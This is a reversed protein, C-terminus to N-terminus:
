ININPYAEKVLKSTLFKVGLDKNILKILLEAEDKHLAELIGALIQKQKLPTLGEPRKPHGKIFRYLRSIETDLYAFNLGAPENAPRYPPIEVDFKIEPHFAMQLFEAFRIHYNKRLVAIREDKTSAKAFDELIESYLKESSM